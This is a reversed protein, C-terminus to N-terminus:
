DDIRQLTDIITVDGNPSNVTVTSTLAYGSAGYGNLDTERNVRARSNASSMPDQADQFTTLTVFRVITAAM